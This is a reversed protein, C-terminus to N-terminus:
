NMAKQVKELVIEIAENLPKEIFSGAAFAHGGGGFYSAIDKVNIPQRNASNKSRLSVKVNGNEIERFFLAIEVNEISRVYDIFGETDEAKTQTKNYMENTVSMWAIRSDSSVMLTQLSMGFLKAKKYPVIDYVMENIYEPKVGEEILEASILHAKSNTNTFKFGGTDTLIATYLCIARDYGIKIGSHKIIDFVLEGTACAETNVLNYKGFYENSSHHDINIILSDSPIQSSIEEGIRALSGSDLIIASEIKDPLITNKFETQTILIDSYPLFRYRVPVPDVNVIYANKDLEKLFSYFALQSGISDGDSNVHSSIMFTKHEAITALIDDIIEPKVM